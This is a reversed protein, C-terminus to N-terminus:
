ICALLLVDYGCHCHYRTTRDRQYLITRSRCVDSASHITCVSSPRVSRCVSYSHVLARCIGFCEVCRLIHLSCCHKCVRADDDNNDDDTRTAAKQKHHLTFNEYFKMFKVIVSDYFLFHKIFFFTYNVYKKQNKKFFKM